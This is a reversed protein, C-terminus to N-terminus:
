FNHMAKLKKSNPSFKGLGFEHGLMVIRDVCLRSKKSSLNFGAKTLYAIVQVNFVWFDWWDHAFIVVDDIYVM